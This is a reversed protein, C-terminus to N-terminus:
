SPKNLVIVWEGQIKQLSSIELYVKEISGYYHHEHLKSIEKALFCLREKGFSIMLESLCKLLRHPSEYIVISCPLESLWEIQSKRGKKQPLFGQYFFKECAFGSATIAPVFATPGPLAIVEINHDRCARVLLFGPDSIGPSGADSVLAIKTGSKLKDLISNTIQHENQSHYSQIPAHVSFARLFPGSVRTDEALILDVQSLVEIARPTFDSKNGIPTPVLYLM